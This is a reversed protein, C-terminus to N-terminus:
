LVPVPLGACSGTGTFIFQNQGFKTSLEDIIGSEQLLHIYVEANLTGQVRILKSKFGPLIYAWIMCKRPYGEYEEWKEPINLGKLVKVTGLQPNSCVICEDTFMWPQSRLESGEINESFDVRRKKHKQTLREKRQVKLM